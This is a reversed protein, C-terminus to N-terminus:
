KKKKEESRALIAPMKKNIIFGTLTAFVNSFVWYWAFTSDYQWCFFISMLPMIYMMSKGSNAAPDAKPQNRMMIWSSLFSTAGALIPLVGLGNVYGAFRDICPGMIQEYATLFATNDAAVTLAGAADKVYFGMDTLLTEFAPQNESYFIFKDIFTGNTEAFTRWFETGTMVASSSLNDPRWINQIWFFKYSDFMEVGALQDQSMTLLLRLMQENSWARFANIFIFFLPMTILLPLCGGFASVGNDQMLKRQELNLRQPDNGYKKQLKQLDPQIKAMKASSKRSSIDSFVTLLRIALTFVAITLVIVFSAQWGTLSLLYEYIWRMALYFWKTLFFANSM